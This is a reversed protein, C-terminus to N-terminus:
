RYFNIYLWESWRSAKLRDTQPYRRRIKISGGSNGHASQIQPNGHKVFKYAPKGSIFDKVSVFQYEFDTSFSFDSLNAHDAMVHPKHSRDDPGLMTLYSSEYASPIDSSPNLKKLSDASRHARSIQLTFTVKKDIYGPHSLTVTVKATGAKLERISNDGNVVIVNPNSSSISSIKIGSPKNKIFRDLIDQENYRKGDYAVVRDVGSVNMSGKGVVINFVADENDNYYPHSLTFKFINNARGAGVEELSYGNGNNPMHIRIDGPLNYGHIKKITAGQPVGTIFKSLIYQEDYKRGTYTPIRTTTKFKVNSMNNKSIDFTIEVVEDKYFKQKLTAKVLTRGVGLHSVTNNSVKVSAKGGTSKEVKMDALTMGDIAVGMMKLLYAEDYTTNSDYKDSVKFSRQASKGKPFLYSMDSKVVDVGFGVTKTHYKKHSLILEFWVTKLPYDNFEIEQKNNDITVMNKVSSDNKLKLNNSFNVGFNVAINAADYVSKASGFFSYDGWIYQFTRKLSTSGAAKIYGKVGKVDPLTVKDFSVLVEKSTKPTYLVDGAKTVKVVVNGPGRASVEGSNSVQGQEATTKQTDVIYKLSGNGDGAKGQVFSLQVSQDWPGVSSPSALELVGQAKKTFEVKVDDDSWASAGHTKTARLRRQITATGPGGNASIKQGNRKVGGSTSQLEYEYKSAKYDNITVDTGWAVKSQSLTVPGPKNQRLAQLEFKIEVTKPNYKPNSLQVVVTSTGVGAHSVTKNQTDIKVSSGNGKLRISAISTGTPEHDIFGLLDNEVYTIGAKYAVTETRGTVNLGFAAKKFEVRVSNSEKANYKGDGLRTVKVRVIGPCKATVVGDRTVIAGLATTGSLVQEYKFKGTGSGTKGQVLGLSVGQNWPRSVSSAIQLEGQDRKTFTVSITASTKANYQADTAKTVKVRVTGPGKATVVGDRTVIAGLATTDSLVQEYKFKGTGSGTKGQVLGLSVGQNWPRSVSSAIQLEGQDRKTFTVSITASTKANYQADTAKTVKVRVTGPGKATVVGDRTVIAGLATTGSLVQEYKFKGTGSGTKGQVLGLSVGQNWPQSVPSAIQLEGQDRKTFTVTVSDSLLSASHTKTAKLRRWITAAGPGGNASIVRGRLSAGRGGTSKLQYEYKNTDYDRDTITVDTGWAVSSQSLTVPSPKVQGQSQIEFSIYVLKPSYKPNQLEVKVRSKGVGAHNVKKNQMDVNVSTGSNRSISAIETKDPVNDILGLLATTDYTTGANYAVTETRGKVNSSFAGVAFRITVNDSVKEQYKDDGRKTVKVAVKGPGSASVVGSASVRADEATTKNLDVSYRLDGSGAGAKDKALSLAVGGGNWPQDQAPSAFELAGQEKRTFEINVTDSWDSQAHTQTKKIRRWIVGKYPATASIVGSNNIRVETNDPILQYEYKGANYNRIRIGTGWAEKDSFLEVKSAQKGKGFLINFHIEVERNEYNRHELTVRVKASGARKHTVSKKDVGVIEVSSGNGMMLTNISTGEPEGEIMGLLDGENYTEGDAYVATHAKGTVKDSMVGKTVKFDIQIDKSQYNTAGFTIKYAAEGANQVKLSKGNEEWALIQAANGKTDQGKVMEANLIAFGSRTTFAGTVAKKIAASGFAGDPAYTMVLPTSGSVPSLAGGEGPNVKFRVHARKLSQGVDSSGFQVGYWAEGVREIKFGKQASEWVVVPNGQYSIVDRIGYGSLDKRQTTLQAVIYQENFINLNVPDYVAELTIFGLNEGKMGEIILVYAKEEGHYKESGAKKAIIRFVGGPVLGELKLPEKEKYVVANESGNIKVRTALSKKLPRVTILIPMTDNADRTVHLRQVFIDKGKVLSETVSAKKFAFTTGILKTSIDKSSGKEPGWLPEPKEPPPASM